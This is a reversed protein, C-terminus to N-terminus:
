KHLFFFTLVIKYIIVSLTALKIVALFNFCALFYVFLTPIDLTFTYLGM